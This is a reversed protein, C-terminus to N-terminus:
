FLWKRHTFINHIKTEGFLINYGIWIIWWYPFLNKFILAWLASVTLRKECMRRSMDNMHVGRLAHTIEKWMILSMSYTNNQLQSKAVEYCSLVNKKEETYM